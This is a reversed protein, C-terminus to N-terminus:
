LACSSSILCCFYGGIGVKKLLLSQKNTMKELEKADDQIKEQCEREKGQLLFVLILNGMQCCAAIHKTDLGSIPISCQHAMM